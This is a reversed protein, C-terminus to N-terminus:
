PIPTYTNIQSNDIKKFACWPFLITATVFTYGIGVTKVFPSWLDFNTSSSTQLIYLATTAGVILLAVTLQIVITILVKCYDKIKLLGAQICYIIIASISVIGVASGTAQGLQYVFKYCVVATINNEELYSM